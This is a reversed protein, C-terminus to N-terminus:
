YEKKFYRYLENLSKQKPLEPKIHINPTKFNSLYIQESEGDVLVLFTKKLKRKKNKRM